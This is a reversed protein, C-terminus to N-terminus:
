IDAKTWVAGADRKNAELISILHLSCPSSFADTAKIYNESNGSSNFAKGLLPDDSGQPEEVGTFEYYPAQHSPFTWAIPVSGPCKRVFATVM